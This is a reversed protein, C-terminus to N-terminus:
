TLDDAGQGRPAEGSEEQLVDLGFAGHVRRISDVTHLAEDLSIRIEESEVRLMCLREHAMTAEKLAVASLEGGDCSSGKLSAALADSKISGIDELIEGINM